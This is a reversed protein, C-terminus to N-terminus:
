FGAQKSGCVWWWLMDGKASALNPNQGPMDRSKGKKQRLHM